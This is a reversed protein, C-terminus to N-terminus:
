EPGEQRRAGRADICYLAGQYRLNVLRAGPDLAGVLPQATLTGAPPAQVGFLAEVVFRVWAAASSCAWDTLYPFDSPAKRAGGADPAVVAEVFHAQGIPGQAATRALGPLWDAVLDFRGIRCLGTATEAPWAAFAGSWQHDPRVDFLADADGPSLAHMWTPTRLEEVFFRCMEERQQPTLADAISHLVWILDICHRVPFLTGDAQRTSWYGRGDVYLSRLEDVIRGEGDRLRAATAADGALEALEAAYRLNAVNTANLGAVEGAYSRVCELLNTMPGYDALGSKTARKRWGEAHGVLAALVARRKGDSGRVERRLWDRDGSWRVFDYILKAMAHDNVAYWQGVGRGTMWDTAMCHDLDSALWHELTRRMVQPDLLAHAVSGLQYDWLWTLTPWYRPMLTTYVRGIVSRPFERKFYLVGMVGQRYLARLDADDTELRPLHGSFRDNGPTMAARLEENWESTAREFEADIAGVIQDWTAQALEATAEIVDLFTVTAVEGPRLDRAIRLGSPDMADAPPWMGQLSVAESHRAHFLVARRVGDVVAENDPESPGIAVDWHGLNSTVTSQLGIRLRVRRAVAGTNEVRLRVLCARRGAPLITESELHLGRLEARRRIRDPRWEFHVPVGTAVFIRDDVYLAGTLSASWSAPPFSDSAGFPPFNLSRIATVDAGVQVSGLFNTLAPPNFLEGFRHQLTASAFDDVNPLAITLPM